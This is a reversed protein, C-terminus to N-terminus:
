ASARGLIVEVVPAVGFHEAVYGRGRDARVAHSEGKMDDLQKILLKPWESEGLEGTCCGAKADAVIRALESDADCITFVPVGAAILNPLKSPFAGAGTGEAQPIVQITSHRYLHMIQDDAVLDHFGLRDLGQSLAKQKLQEFYAGRSFIHCQVDERMDVLRAFFALLEQPRQKEGLAGSYVIHVSGRPFLGTLEDCEAGRQPLSVFPYHVECRDADIRYRDVLVRKMAESLCILRDCRAMARREMGGIVRSVVKRFLSTVSGAMIGQIDHVIGVRRIRRPLLVTLLSMYLEPPFVPVVVDVGNRLRWATVCVHWGFWTELILRRLIASGPYRLWGGGRHIVVGELQADSVTPRWDPYLPHSCIVEVDCGAAVLAKALHTNYRGTSIMEPHFFPSIVLVRPRREEAMHALGM